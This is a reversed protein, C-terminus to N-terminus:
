AACRFKGFAEEVSAACGTSKETGSKLVEPKGSLSPKRPSEAGARKQSDDWVADEIFSRARNRFIPHVCEIPYPPGAAFSKTRPGLRLAARYLYALSCSPIFRAEPNSDRGWSNELRAQSFSTPSVKM